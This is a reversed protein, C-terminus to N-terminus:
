RFYLPPQPRFCARLGIGGVDRFERKETDVMQSSALSVSLSLGVALHSSGLTRAEVRTGGKSGRGPSQESGQSAPNDKERRRDRRRPLMQALPEWAKSGLM